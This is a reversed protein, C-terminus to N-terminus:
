SQRSKLLAVPTIGVTFVSAARILPGAIRIPFVVFSFDVKDSPVADVSDYVEYEMTDLYLYDNYGNCVNEKFFADMAHANKKSIAIHVTPAYRPDRCEIDDMTKGCLLPAAEECVKYLESSDKVVFTKGCLESLLSAYDNENNICITRM